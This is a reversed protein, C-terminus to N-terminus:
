ATTDRVQSTGSARISRVSSRVSRQFPGTLRPSAHDAPAALPLRLQADATFAIQLSFLATVSWLGIAMGKSRPM